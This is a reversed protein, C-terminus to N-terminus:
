ANCARVADAAANKGRGHTRFLIFRKRKKLTDGHDLCLRCDVCTIVGPRKEAPCPVAKFGPVTPPKEDHPWALAAPYGALDAAKIDAATECSAFVSVGAWSSRLVSRWAHTYGWVARGRKLYRGAAKSIIQAAKNTTADGVVFLRLDLRARSEKILAAAKGAISEVTGPGCATAPDYFPCSVPCSKKSTGLADCPGTKKNSTAATLYAGGAATVRQTHVSQPFNDAYCGGGM